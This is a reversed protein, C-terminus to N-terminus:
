AFRAVAAYARNTGNFEVKNKPEFETGEGGQWGLRKALRAMAGGLSTTRSHIADDKVKHQEACCWGRRNLLSPVNAMQKSVSM